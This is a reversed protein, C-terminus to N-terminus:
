NLKLGLELNQTVYGMLMCDQGTLMIIYGKSSSFFLYVAKQRGIFLLFLVPFM